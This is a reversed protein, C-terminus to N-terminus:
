NFVHLKQNIRKHDESTAYAKHSAFDDIIYNQKQVQNKIFGISPNESLVDTSQVQLTQNIKQTRSRDIEVKIWDEVDNKLDVKKAIRGTDPMTQMELRQQKKLERQKDSEMQRRM